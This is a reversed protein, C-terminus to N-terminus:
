ETAAAIQLVANLTVDEPMRLQELVSSATSFQDQRKLYTMHLDFAGKAIEAKALRDCSNRCELQPVRECLSMVDCDFRELMEAAASKDMEEQQKLAMAQDSLAFYDLYINGAISWNPIQRTVEAEGQKLMELLSRLDGTLQENLLSKSALHQMITDHAFRWHGALLLERALKLHDGTASLARAENLWKTPVGLQSTVFDEQEQTSSGAALQRGVVNKVHKERERNDAIHMLVFVAQHWLGSSELQAAYAVHMEVLNRTHINHKYGVSQLIRWIHWSSRHDLAHPLSSKTTLLNELRNSRSCYLQLLQYCVDELNEDHDEESSGPAKDEYFPLPASCYSGFDSSGKWADTYLQLADDLSTVPQSIFLIHLLLAHKWDLNECTNISGRSSTSWMPKAALVSYIKIMDDSIHEDFKLDEWEILQKNIAMRFAVNGIAQSLLIALRGNGTRISCQIAADVKGEVLLSFVEEQPSGYIKQVVGTAIHDAEIVDVLWSILAGKRAQKSGHHKTDESHDDGERQIDGWLAECLTFVSLRLHTMGSDCHDKVLAEWDKRALEAYDIVIGNGLAPVILKLESEHQNNLKVSTMSADHMLVSTNSTREHPPLSVHEEFSSHMLACDLYPLCTRTAEM